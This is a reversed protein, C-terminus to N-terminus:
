GRVAPEDQDLGEIFVLGEPGLIRVPKQTQWHLTRASHALMEANAATVVTRWGGKDPEWLQVEFRRM